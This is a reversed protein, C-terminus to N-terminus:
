EAKEVAEVVMGGEKEVRLAEHARKLAEKEEVEEAADLRKEEEEGKVVADGGVGEETQTKFDRTTATTTGEEKKIDETLDLGATAYGPELPKSHYSGSTPRDPVAAAPPELALMAKPPATTSEEIQVM